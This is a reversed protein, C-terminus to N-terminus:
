VQRRKTERMTALCRSAFRTCAIPINVGTATNICWRFHLADILFLLARAPLAAVLGDPVSAAFISGVLGRAGRAALPREIFGGGTSAVTRRACPANGIAM